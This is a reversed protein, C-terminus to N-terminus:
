PNEQSDDLPNSSDGRVMLDDISDLLTPPPALFEVGILYHDPEVPTAPVRRLHRVKAEVKVEHGEVTMLITQTSDAAAGLRSALLAGTRNINVIRASENIDVTGWLAGVVEFRVRARRDGLPKM